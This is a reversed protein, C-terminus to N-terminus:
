PILDAIETVTLYRWGSAAQTVTLNGGGGGATMDYFAAVRYTSPAFDGSISLATFDFSQAFAGGAGAIAVSFADLLTDTNAVAGPGLSVQERIRIRADAALAATQAQFRAAYTVLYTRNATIPFEVDGLQDDKQEAGALLITPPNTQSRAWWFGTVKRLQDLDHTHDGPSAETSRLGLTHHLAAPSGDVDSAQHLRAALAPDGEIIQIVRAALAADAAGADAGHGHWRHRGLWDPTPSSV